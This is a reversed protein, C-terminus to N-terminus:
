IYQLLSGHEFKFNIIRMLDIKFKSGHNNFRFQKSLIIDIRIWHFGSDSFFVIVLHLINLKAFM